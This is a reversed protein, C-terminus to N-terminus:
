SWDLVLLRASQSWRLRPGLRSTQLETLRRAVRQRTRWAELPRALLRLM